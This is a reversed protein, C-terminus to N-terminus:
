TGESRLNEGFGVRAILAILLDLDCANVQPERLGCGSVVTPQSGDV